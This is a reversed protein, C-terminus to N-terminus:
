QVTEILQVVYGAAIAGLRYAIAFLALTALVHSVVKRVALHTAALAAAAAPVALTLVFVLLWRHLPIAGPTLWLAVWAALALTLAVPGLLYALWVTRVAARRALAVAALAFLVGVGLVILPLSEFLRIALPM